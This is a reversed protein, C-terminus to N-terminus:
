RRRLTLSIPSPSQDPPAPYYDLRVSDPRVEVVTLSVTMASPRSMCVSLHRRDPWSHRHFADQAAILDAPPAFMEHFLARRPPDVLHDGLGSSAYMLPAAGLPTADLRRQVGDSEICAVKFQDVVLLRFPPYDCPDLQTAYDAAIAATDFHLLAPIITGRSRRGTRLDLDPPRPADGSLPPRHANLLTIVLGADNVAIWTGDSKPDVPLIATRTGYRRMVPPLAPPRDPSEDRNCALRLTPRGGRGPQNWEAHPPKLPVVTVTCM